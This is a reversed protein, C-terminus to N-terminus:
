REAHTAEFHAHAQRIVLVAHVLGPLYLLATLLLNVLAQKPKGTILTAFPPCVIAIVYIFM